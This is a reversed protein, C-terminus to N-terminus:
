TGVYPISVWVMVTIGVISAMSERSHLYKYFEEPLILCALPSQVTCGTLVEQVQRRLCPYGVLQFVRLPGHLDMYGFLIHM